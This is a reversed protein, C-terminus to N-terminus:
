QDIARLVPKSMVCNITRQSSTLYGAKRLTNDMLTLTRELIGQPEFFARQGALRIVQLQQSLIKSFAQPSIGEREAMLPYAKNPYTLSYQIAAEIARIFAVLEDIRTALVDTQVVLVDIIEQPIEQSSFLRQTQGTQQLIVALPPYTVVADVTQNYFAYKMVDPTMPVLIVDNLTLNAKELARALLYMNVSGLELGIRKGRLDAIKTLSPQALIVDGGSSYDIVYVIPPCYQLNERALLVESLTTAMVDLQGREFALRSDGLSPFEILQVNIGAQAFLGQEQALFIFEYGPWTNLGIRLLAPPTRYCGWTSLLTFIIISWTAIRNFKM